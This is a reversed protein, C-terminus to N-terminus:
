VSRAMSLLSVTRNGFLVTQHALRKIGGCDQFVRIGVSLSAPDVRVRERAEQGFSRLVEFRIRRVRRCQQVRFRGQQLLNDRGDRPLLPPTEDDIAAQGVTLPEFAEHPADGDSHQERLRRASSTQGTGKAAPSIVLCAVVALNEEHDTKNGKRM